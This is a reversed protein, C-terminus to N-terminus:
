IKVSFILMLIAKMTIKVLLRQKKALLKLLNHKM